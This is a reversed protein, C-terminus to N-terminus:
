SRYWQRSSFKTAAWFKQRIEFTQKIPAYDPNHQIEFTQKMPAYDTFFCLTRAEDSFLFQRWIM